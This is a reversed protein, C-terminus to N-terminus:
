LSLRYHSRSVTKLPLQLSVSAAQWFFASDELNRLKTDNSIAQLMGEGLQGM